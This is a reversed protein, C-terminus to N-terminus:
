KSSAGTLLLRMEHAIRAEREAPTEKKPRNAGFPFLSKMIDTPLLATKRKQLANFLSSCVAAARYNGLWFDFPEISEYAM